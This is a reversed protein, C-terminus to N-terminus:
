EGGTKGETLREYEGIFEIIENYKTAPLYFLTRMIGMGAPSVWVAEPFRGMIAQQEMYNEAVVQVVKKAKM